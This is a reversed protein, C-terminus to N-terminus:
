VVLKQVLASPIAGVIIAGGVLLAGGILPLRTGRTRINIFFLAAAGLYLFVLLWYTWVQVNVDVYGAGFAVWGESYLLGYIRLRYIWAIVLLM